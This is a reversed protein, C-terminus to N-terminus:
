FGLLNSISRSVWARQVPNGAEFIRCGKEGWEKWEKPRGELRVKRPGGGGESELGVRARREYGEVIGVLEDRLLHVYFLRNGALLDFELM